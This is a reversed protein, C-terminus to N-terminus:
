RNLMQLNGKIITQNKLDYIVADDESYYYLGWFSFYDQENNNGSKINLLLTRENEMVNDEFVPVYIEYPIETLGKTIYASHQSLQILINELQQQISHDYIRNVIISTDKLFFSFEEVEIEVDNCAKLRNLAGSFSNEHCAFNGWTNKEFHHLTELLGFNCDLEIVLQILDNTPSCNRVTVQSFFHKELNKVFSQLGEIEIKDNFGVRSFNDFDDKNLPM